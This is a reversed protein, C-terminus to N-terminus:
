QSTQALGALAVPTFIETTRGRDCGGGSVQSRSLGQPSALHQTQQGGPGWQPVASSRGLGPCRSPSKYRRKALAPADDTVGARAGQEVPTSHTKNTNLQTLGSCLRPYSVWELSFHALGFPVSGLPLPLAPFPTFPRITFCSAAAHPLGRPEWVPPERSSRRGVLVGPPVPPQWPLCTLFVSFPKPAAGAQLGRPWCIFPKIFVWWPSRSQM